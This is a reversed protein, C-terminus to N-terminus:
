REKGPSPTLGRRGGAPDMRKQSPHLMVSFPRIPQVGEECGDSLSVIGGIM